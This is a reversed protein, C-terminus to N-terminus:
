WRGSSHICQISQGAEFENGDQHGQGGCPTYKDNEGDKYKVHTAINEKHM